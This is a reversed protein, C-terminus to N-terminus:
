IIVDVRYSFKYVSVIRERERVISIKITLFDITIEKKRKKDADNIIQLLFLYINETSITHKM